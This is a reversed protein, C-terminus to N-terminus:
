LILKKPDNESTMLLKYTQEAYTNPAIGANMLFGTWRVHEWNTAFCRNPDTELSDVLDSPVRTEFELYYPLAISAGMDNINIDRKQILGGAVLSSNRNSSEFKLKETDYNYLFSKLWPFHTTLLRDPSLRVNFISEPSPVGDTVLVSRDLDFVQGTIWELSAIVTFEAVSILIDTYVTQTSGLDEVSLVTYVNNNSATGTIRFKQGAVIKPNIPFVIYNGSSIFSLLVSEIKPKNLVADIVFVDNDNSNDTTVKGELNLRTIEIEYPGAKYRSQLDIQRDIVKIPSSYIHYGNFDFKGNVDDINQEAHGIKISSFLQDLAPKIVMNKAEGLETAAAVSDKKFFFNREELVIQDNQVGLGAMLYVNYSKFFDSMTTKIESGPLGRIADGCTITYTCKSLLESIAADIPIGLKVCLKKYFVYPTYADIYTTDAKNKFKMTMKSEALFEIKLDVGPTGLFGELYLRESPQLSIDIDIDHTHIQNAVPIESFLEYDNQNGTTQTSKLFRMKFFQGPDNDTCRYMIKGSINVVVSGSNTSSAQAAWNNSLLKDSFSLSNTSEINQTLFAVGSGSGDQGILSFPAWWFGGYVSNSIEFGDALVYSAQKEIDIGDLKIKISDEDFPIAYQISGGSKLLKNLGGEMIGIEVIGEGQKDEFTSFDLQGKYLYKYYNKYYTSDIESVYRLILLYLERDINLKYADNRLIKAADMVFGLPLSFNRINGFLESSREWGIAIDQSGIPAQPLSTKTGLSTVVGNVIQRVRGDGEVFFFLVDKAM